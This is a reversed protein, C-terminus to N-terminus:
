QLPTTCSVQQLTAILKSLFNLIMSGVSHTTPGEADTRDAGGAAQRRGGAAQRRGGAAQRGTAWAQCLTFGVLQQGLAWHVHLHDSAM